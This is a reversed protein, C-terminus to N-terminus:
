NGTAMSAIVRREREMARSMLCLASSLWEADLNETPISSCVGAEWLAHRYQRLKLPLLVIVRLRPNTDLLERVADPTEAEALTWDLLVLDDVNARARRMLDHRSGARSAEVQIPVLQLCAQLLSDMLNHTEADPAAVVLRLPVVAACTANM